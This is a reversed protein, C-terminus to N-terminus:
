LTFRVIASPVELVAMLSAMAAMVWWLEQVWVTAARLWARSSSTALWRGPTPRRRMRMVSPTGSCILSGSSLMVLIICVRLLKEVSAAEGMLVLTMPKSPLFNEASSGPTSSCSLFELMESTSSPSVASVAWSITLWNPMSHGPLKADNVMKRLAGWSMNKFFYKNANFSAHLTYMEFFHVKKLFYM